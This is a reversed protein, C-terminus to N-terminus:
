RCCSSAAAQRLCRAGPCTQCTYRDAKFGNADATFVRSSSPCAECEKSALQKGTITTEVLAHNDPCTCDGLLADLGNTTSGCPMCRTHDRSVAQGLGVCSTCDPPGCLSPSTVDCSIESTRYGEPCVCKRSFGLVDLSSADPVRSAAVVSGIHCEKCAVATTDFYQSSASCTGVEFSEAAARLVVSPGLLLILVIAFTMPSSARADRAAAAMATHTALVLAPASRISRLNTVHGTPVWGAERTQVLVGRRARLIPTRCGPMGAGTHATGSM